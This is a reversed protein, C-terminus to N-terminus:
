KVNIGKGKLLDIVEKRFEMHHFMKHHNPCLGTLNDRSNNEKNEDLHHIDVVKNFGCIVCEKIIDKYTKIDINYRNKYNWEKNYQLRFVTNYCGTCLGKGQYKRERGCRNCLKIKPKWSFKRYCVVCYGKAHHEEDKGCGGCKKIMLKKTKKIIYLIIIVKFYLEYM